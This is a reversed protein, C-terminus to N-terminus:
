FLVQEHKISRSLRWSCMEEIIIKQKHGSYSLGKFRNKSVNRDLSVGTIDRVSYLRSNKVIFVKKIEKKQNIQQKKCRSRENQELM